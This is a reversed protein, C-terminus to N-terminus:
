IIQVEDEEHDFALRAGDVEDEEYKKGEERDQITSPIYLEDLERDGGENLFALLKALVHRVQVGEECVLTAARRRYGYSFTDTESAHHVQIRRVPPQCIYQSCVERGFKKWLDVEVTWDDDPDLHPDFRRNSYAMWFSKSGKGQGLKVKVTDMGRPKSGLQARFRLLLHRVVPNFTVESTSILRRESYVSCVQLLDDPSQGDRAANEPEALRRVRSEPIPKNFSLRQVTPSEAVTDAWDRSVLRLSRLDKMAKPPSDAGRALAVAILDRLEAISFARAVASTSAAASANNAM